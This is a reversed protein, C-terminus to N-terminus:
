KKEHPPHSRNENLTVLAQEGRNPMGSLLFCAIGVAGFFWWHALLWQILHSLRGVPIPLSFALWATASGDIAVITFPKGPNKVNVKQWHEKPDAAIPIPHIEGDKTEVFLRMGNALPYGAIYM